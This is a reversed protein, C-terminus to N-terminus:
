SGFPVGPMGCLNRGRGGIAGRLRVGRAFPDTFRVRERLSKM